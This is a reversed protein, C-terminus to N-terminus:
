WRTDPRYSGPTRSRSRDPHAPRLAHARTVGRPVAPPEHLCPHGLTRFLAGHRPVRHSQSLGPARHCPLGPIHQLYRDCASWAPSWALSVSPNSTQSWGSGADPHSSSSCTTQAPNCAPPKPGSRSWPLPSSQPATTSRSGTAGAVFRTQASTRSPLSPRPSQGSRGHDEVRSRWLAQVALDRSARWGM